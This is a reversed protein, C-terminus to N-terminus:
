GGCSPVQEQDAECLLTTATCPADVFEFGDTCVSPVSAGYCSAPSTCSSSIDSCYADGEAENIRCSCYSSGGVNCAVVSCECSGGSPWDSTACCLDAVHSVTPTCGPSSRGGDSAVECFCFYGQEECHYRVDSGDSEESPRTPPDSVLLPCGATALALLLVPARTRAFPTLVPTTMAEKPISLARRAARYARYATHAPRSPAFPTGM